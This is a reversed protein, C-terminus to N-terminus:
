DLYYKKGVLLKKVPGFSEYERYRRIRDEELANARALAESWQAEDMQAIKRRVGYKERLEDSVQKATKKRIELYEPIMQSDASALPRDLQWAALRGFAGKRASDRDDTGRAQWWDALKEFIGPSDSDASKKTVEASEGSPKTTDQSYTRGFMGGPRKGNFGSITGRQSDESQEDAVVPESASAPPVDAGTARDEEAWRDVLDRAAKERVLEDRNWLGTHVRRRSYDKRSDATDESEPLAEGPSGRDPSLELQKEPLLEEARRVLQQPDNRAIAYSRKGPEQIAQWAARLRAKDPNPGMWEIVPKFETQIGREYPLFYEPAPADKFFDKVDQWEESWPGKEKLLREVRENEARASAAAHRSRETMGEESARQAKGRLIRRRDKKYKAYIEKQAAARDEATLPVISALFKRLSMRAADRAERKKDSEESEEKMKKLVDETWPKENMVPIPHVPKLGAHRMAEEPTYGDRILEAIGHQEIEEKTLEPLPPPGGKAVIPAPKNRARRVAAIVEPKKLVDGSGWKAEIM